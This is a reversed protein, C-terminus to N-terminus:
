PPTSASCPPAATPGSRARVRDPLAGAIARLLTSKGSGNHGIVGISEGHHAVFSVGRVARVVDVAGVHGRCRPAGRRGGYTKYHVHVDDVVLSPTGPLTSLWPRVEGRQALLVRVRAVLAGVAWGM